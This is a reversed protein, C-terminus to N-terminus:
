PACPDCYEVAASAGRFAVSVVKVVDVVNTSGSCDVDTRGQVTTGHPPCDSDNVVAQGRFAVTITGVVDQVNSFVGDCAPDAHCACVCTQCPGALTFSRIESWASSEIPVGGPANHSKIRWYLTGAAPLGQPLALANVAVDIAFDVTLFTPDDSIEISYLDEAELWATAWKLTDDCSLVSGTATLQRPETLHFEWTASWVDQDGDRTDTWVAVLTNRNVALGIYEAILGAMPTNPSKMAAAIASHAPKGANAKAALLLGPDSSVSSIRENSTWTAGGDFSYAAFVDFLLKNPDLRTDYWISALIGTENVVLWNHFQEAANAPPDDNVLMPSSWTNGTDLSRRFVIDGRDFVPSMSTDRYQLYLNGAHPGTYIDCETVPQSYIDIGSTTGAWGDVRGLIRETGWTAGGDISKNLRIAQHFSCGSSSDIDAGQWFVYVAGDKGVLPQSFQGADVVGFCSTPHTAGVIVTDGWTVGGNASRCLMIRTPDFGSVNSFRTWSVYVTGDYSSGTRDSTIFQKDEFWPGQTPLTTFPGSWTQGCDDSLLFAMFSSDYNPTTPSFDLYCHVLRGSSTATLVPDSQWDYIQYSPAMLTDTWTLGGNTSRGMGIQRYGLRFDRHNTFVVTPDNPCIWVQEENQLNPQSGSVPVNLPVAQASTCLFVFALTIAVFMRVTQM